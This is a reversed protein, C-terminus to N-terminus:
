LLSSARPIFRLPTEPRRRCFFRIEERGSGEVSLHKDQSFCDWREKGYKNLTAEIDASTSDHPISIVKYEYQQLKSVEDIAGKTTVNEGVLDTVSKTLASVQNQLEKTEKRNCGILSSFLFVTCLVKIM